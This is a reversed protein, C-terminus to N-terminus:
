DLYGVIFPFFFCLLTFPVLGGICQDQANSSSAGRRERKGDWAMEQGRRGGEKRGLGRLGFWDLRSSQRGQFRGDRGLRGLELILFDCFPGSAMGDKKARRGGEGKTESRRDVSWVSMHHSAVSQM